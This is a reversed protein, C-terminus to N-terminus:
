IVKKASCPESMTEYKRIDRSMAGNEGGVHLRPQATVASGSPSTELEIHKMLNELRKM